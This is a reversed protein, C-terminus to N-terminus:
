KKEVLLLAEDCLIKLAIKIEALNEKNPFLGLSVFWAGLLTKEYGKEFEGKKRTIGLQRAKHHYNPIQHLKSLKILPKGKEPCTNYALYLCVWEEHEQLFQQASHRIRPNDQIELTNENNFISHESNEELLMEREAEFSVLTIRQTERQAKRSGKEMVPHQQRYLRRKEDRLYNWFSKKIYDESNMASNHLFIKEGFFENFDDDFSAPFHSLKEKIIVYILHYLEKWKEESLGKSKSRGRLLTQLRSEEM